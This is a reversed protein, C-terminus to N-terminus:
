LGCTPAWSGQGEGSRAGLGQGERRHPPILEPSPLPKAKLASSAPDLTVPAHHRSVELCDPSGTAPTWGPRGPSAALGQVGRWLCQEADGLSGLSGAWAGGGCGHWGGLGAGAGLPQGRPSPCPLTLQAFLSRLDAPGLPNGGQAACGRLQAKLSHVAPGKPTCLAPAPGLWPHTAPKPQQPPGRTEGPCDRWIRGEPLALVQCSEDEGLPSLSIHGLDRTGGEPAPHGVTHGWGTGGGRCHPAPLTPPRRVGPATGHGKRERMSVSGSVGRDAPLPGQSEPRLKNHPIPSM